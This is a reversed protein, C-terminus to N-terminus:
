VSDVTRERERGRPRERERVGRSVFHLTWSRGYSAFRSFGCLPSFPAASGVVAAPIIVSLLAVVSPQLRLVPSLFVRPLFLYFKQLLLPPFCNESEVCPWTTSCPYVKRGLGPVGAQGTPRQSRRRDSAWLYPRSCKLVSVKLTRTSRLLSLKHQEVRRRLRRRRILKHCTHKLHQPFTLMRTSRARKMAKPSNATVIQHVVGRVLVPNLRLQETVTFHTRLCVTGFYSCIVLM